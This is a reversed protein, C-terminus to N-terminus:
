AERLVHHSQKTKSAIVYFFLGVSTPALGILRTRDLGIM